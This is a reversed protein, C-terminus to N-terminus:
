QTSWLKQSQKAILDEADREAATLPYALAEEVSNFPPVLSSVRTVELLVRKVRSGAVFFGQADRGAMQAVRELLESFRVMCSRVVGNGLIPTRSSCHPRPNESVAPAHPPAEDIATLEERAPVEVVAALEV